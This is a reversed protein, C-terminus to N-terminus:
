ATQLRGQTREHWVKSYQDRLRRIEEMTMGPTSAEILRPDVSLRRAFRIVGFGGPTSGEGRQVEESFPRYIADLVLLFNPPEQTLGDAVLVTSYLNFNLDPKDFGHGDRELSQILFHAQEFVKCGLRTLIGAVSGLNADIDRPRSTDTAWGHASQAAKRLAECKLRADLVKPDMSAKLPPLECLESYARDLENLAVSVLQNFPKM